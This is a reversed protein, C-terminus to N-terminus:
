VDDAQGESEVGADAWGQRKAWLRQFRNRAEVLRWRITAEKRDMIAAIESTPFNELDRLVLVTRYKEPIQELTAQVEQRLELHNRPDSEAPDMPRDSPGESFLKWWGRRKQRRLHDLTLNVAIRFLWPGFRRSADFQHLRQFARLFVDQTLDRALEFDDVFRLVVRMVRREYRDVLEGFVDTDGQRVVEILRADSVVGWENSSGNAAADTANTTNPAARTEDQQDTPISMIHGRMRSSGRHLVDRLGGLNSVTGTKQAIEGLFPVDLSLGMMSWRGLAWFGTGPLVRRGSRGGSILRRDTLVLGAM